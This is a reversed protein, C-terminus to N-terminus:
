YKVTKCDCSCLCKHNVFHASAIILGGLPVMLIEFYEQKAIHGSIIFAFGTLMIVLPLIKRHRSIFCRGISSLAIFFSLAIMSWEVWPEKLFGLGILPLGSLLLPVIACHIACLTSTVMGINDLRAEKKFM